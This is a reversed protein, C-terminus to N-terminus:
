KAAKKNSILLTPFERFNLEYIYAKAHCFNKQVTKVKVKDQQLFEVAKQASLSLNLASEIGSDDRLLDAIKENKAEEQM